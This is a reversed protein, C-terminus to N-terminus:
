SSFLNDVVEKPNEYSIFFLNNLFFGLDPSIKCKSVSTDFGELVNFFIFFILSRGECMVLLLFSCPDRSLCIYEKM